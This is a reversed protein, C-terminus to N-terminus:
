IVTTALLSYVHGLPKHGKKGASHEQPTSAVCFPPHCTISWRPLLQPGRWSTGPPAAVEASMTRSTAPLVDYCAHENRLRVLDSALKLMNYSCAYYVAGCRLACQEDAETARLVFEKVLTTREGPIPPFYFVWGRISGRTTFPSWFPRKAWLDCPQHIWGYECNEM